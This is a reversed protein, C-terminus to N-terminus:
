SGLFDENKKFYFHMLSKLHLILLVISFNNSEKQKDNGSQKQRHQGNKDMKLISVSISKGSKMM